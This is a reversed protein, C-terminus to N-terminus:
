PYALSQSKGVASCRYIAHRGRCGNTERPTRHVTLREVLGRAMEEVAARWPDFLEGNDFDICELDGSVPGGAVAIGCPGGQWWEIVQRESPLEEFPTLRDIAPAKSGDARIPIVSLGARRYGLAMELTNGNGKGAGDAM